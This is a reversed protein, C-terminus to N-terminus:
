KFLLITRFHCFIMLNDFEHHRSKSKRLNLFFFDHHRDGKVILSRYKTRIRIAKAAYFDKDRGSALLTLAKGNPVIERNVDRSM